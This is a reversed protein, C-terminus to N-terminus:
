TTKVSAWSELARFGFYFAASKMFPRHKRDILWDLWNICLRCSSEIM